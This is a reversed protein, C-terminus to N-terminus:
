HKTFILLIHLSRLEANTLQYVKTKTFWQVLWKKIISRILYIRLLTTYCKTYSDLLILYQKFIFM